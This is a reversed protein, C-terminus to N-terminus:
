INKVNLPYYANTTIEVEVKDKSKLIGNVNNVAIEMKEIDYRNPLLCVRFIQEGMDDELLTVRTVTTKFTTKKGESVDKKLDFYKYEKLLYGIVLAILCVLLFIYATTGIKEPLTQSAGEFYRRGGRSFISSPVFAGITGVAIFALFVSIMLKELDHVRHKLKAVEEKNLSVHVM